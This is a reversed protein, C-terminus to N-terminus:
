VLFVYVPTYPDSRLYTLVSSPSDNEPHQYLYSHFDQILLDQEGQQEYIFGSTDYVSGFPNPTSSILYDRSSAAAQGYDAIDLSPLSITGM